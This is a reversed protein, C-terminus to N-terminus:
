SCPRSGPPHRQLHRPPRHPPLLLTGQLPVPLAHMLLASVGGGEGNRLHLHPQAEALFLM